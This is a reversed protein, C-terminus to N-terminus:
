GGSRACFCCSQWSQGLPLSLGMLGGDYALRWSWWVRSGQRTNSGRCGEFDFSCRELRRASPGSFLSYFARWSRLQWGRGPSNRRAFLPTLIDWWGKHPHSGMTRYRNKAVVHVVGVIVLPLWNHMCKKKAVVVLRLAQVMAEIDLEESFISQNMRAQSVWQLGAGPSLVDDSFRSRWKHVLVLLIQIRWEEWEWFAIEHYPSYWRDERRKLRAENFDPSAWRDAQTTPHSTWILIEYVGRIPRSWVSM